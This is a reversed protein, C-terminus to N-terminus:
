AQEFTDVGRMVRDWQTWYAQMQCEDDPAGIQERLDPATVDLGKSYESWETPSNEIGQQCLELMEIDDASGFGAPGLFNSFNDMRIAMLAPDEGTHGLGWARVHIENVSVPNIVRITLGVNDNFVLNPFIVLNKQVEALYAAHDEGYAEVLRARNKWVEAKVEDPWRDLPDAVPRGTPVRSSLLAHGNGLGEVKGTSRFAAGAGAVGASDAESEAKKARDALYELYSIHTPIVHYGDYSNEVLYKYNARISYAHEGKVVYLGEDGEAAQECYYDIATKAGALYDSLSIADPNFNVFYFGRYHELRAPTPLNLRGDANLDDRYGEKSYTTVLKGALDFGWGHYPCTFIRTNGKRERCVTAGRHTCANFLAQIEGSKDRAFILNRGGVERQVFDGPKQLESRHGLYLWCKDFIKRKEEEFVEPDRYADRHVRFRGNERDIDVLGPGTGLTDKRGTRDIRLQTAM